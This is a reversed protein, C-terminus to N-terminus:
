KKTIGESTAFQLDQLNDRVGAIDSAVVADIGVTVSDGIKAAQALLQKPINELQAVMEPSEDIAINAYFPNVAHLFHLWAFIVQPRVRTQELQKSFIADGIFVVQVMSSIDGM